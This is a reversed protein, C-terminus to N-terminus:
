GGRQGNKSEKELELIMEDMTQAPTAEPKKRSRRNKKKDLWGAVTAHMKILQLKQRPSYDNELERGTIQLFQSKTMAKQLQKKMDDWLQQRVHYKEFATIYKRSM